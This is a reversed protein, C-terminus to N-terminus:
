SESYTLPALRVFSRPRILPLTRSQWMVARAIPLLSSEGDLLDGLLVLVYQIVNANKSATELVSPKGAASVFLQRYGDPDGEVIEKRQEPKKAKDVTRIKNYQEDTLTNARVLGDWPIPRQRINSQLSALYTPPDLSM